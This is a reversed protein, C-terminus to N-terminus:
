LLGGEQSKPEGCLEIREAWLTIDVAPEGGNRQYVSVDVVGQVFLKRGKTLYQSIGNGGNENNRKLVKIFVAEKNKSATCAVNFCTYSNMGIEKTECDKTLNGIIQLQLM